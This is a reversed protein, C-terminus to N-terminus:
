CVNTDRITFTGTKASKFIGIIKAIKMHVPLDKPAMITIDPLRLTKNDPKIIVSTVMAILNKEDINPEPWIDGGSVLVFDKFKNTSIHVLASEIFKDIETDSYDPFHTYRVEVTDGETLSETINIKNTTSDFAFLATLVDNVFVNTITNVNVETLTFVTSAKFTFIDINIEESDEILVRVVSEINSLNISM